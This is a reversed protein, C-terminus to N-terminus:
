RSTGSPSSVGPSTTGPSRTSSGSSGNPGCDTMATRDNTSASGSTGTTSTGASNRTTTSGASGSSPAAATPSGNDCDMSRNLTSSTGGTANPSTSTQAMAPGLMLAVVSAATLITRHM